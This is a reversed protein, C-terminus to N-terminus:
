RPTLSKLKEEVTTAPYYKRFAQLYQRQEKFIGYFIFFTTGRNLLNDKVHAM